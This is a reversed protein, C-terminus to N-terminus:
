KTQLESAPPTFNATYRAVGKTVRFDDIYGTIPYNGNVASTIRDGITWAVGANPLTSSTASAKSIGNVYLVQSTGNKVLAVHYWNNTGLASAASTLITSGSAYYSMAGNSEVYLDTLGAGVGGTSSISFLMQYASLTTLYVWMEITFDGTLNLSVSSPIILRDGTGDFSMSSGGFKSVATSIKADGVTELNNRMAADYIGANTFNLLLATGAIATLPATPPTFATTYVATGKVIRVNSLWGTMLLQAVGSAAGTAGIYLVQGPNLTNALTGTAKSAGNVFITIGGGSRVVAFHNWSNASWAGAASTAVVTNGYYFMIDGATTVNVAIGIGQLPSTAYNGMLDQRSATSTIIFWGEITFDATFSFAADNPASLYDGTGDFYGSGGITGATYSETPSFPGSALRNVSVEGAKTIALPSASKDV